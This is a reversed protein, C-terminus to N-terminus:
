KRKAWIIAWIQKIDKNIRKKRTNEGKDPAFFVGVIGGVLTGWVLGKVIGIRRAARKEREIRNPDLKKKFEQVRTQFNRLNM